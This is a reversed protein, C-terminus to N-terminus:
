VLSEILRLQSAMEEPVEELRLAGALKHANLAPQGRAQRMSSLVSFVEKGPLRATCWDDDDFNKRVTAVAESIATEEHRRGRTALARAIMTAEFPGRMQDFVMRLDARTSALTAGPTMRTIASPALLYNELEKRAWVHGHVGVGALQTVIDAAEVDTRFDRDLLVGVRVSKALFGDVLWKFPEVGVWRTFGGMPIAVIGAEAAFRKCGIQDAVRRLVKMDQGEVFVVVKARLASALRLNFNSGIQTALIERTADDPRRISAKRSKDIWIINQDSAEALMEPSHTATIVQAPLSEFLRVLRRQLDAHLFVDPEDFVMIQHHRYKWAFFLIQLYIQLGDGAWCIEKPIREGAERYYLDLELEGEATPASSIELQDIEPLHTVAFQAFLDFEGAESLEIMHNRLHQSVRRTRISAALYDSDLRRERRAVPALTPVVGIDVYDKRWTGPRVSYQFVRSRQHVFFYPSEGTPLGSDDMMRPWVATLHTGNSLDLVLRAENDRFNHRLNEADIESRQESLRYAWVFNGGDQIRVDPRRLSAQKLMASVGRIAEILTSKGANNPGIIFSAEGPTTLDFSAFTKYNRLRLRTLRVPPAVEASSEDESVDSM